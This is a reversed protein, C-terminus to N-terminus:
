RAELSAPNMVPAARAISPPLVAPRQARSAGQRASMLNRLRRNARPAFALWTYHATATPVVFGDGYDTNESTIEIPAPDRFLKPWESYHVAFAPLM